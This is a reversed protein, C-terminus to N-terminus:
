IGGAKRLQQGVSSTEGTRRNRVKANESFLREEVCEALARINVPGFVTGDPLRVLWDMELQPIEHAPFWISGDESLENEPLIRGAEAWTRMKDMGAPGFVSGDGVRLYWSGKRSERAVPDHPLHGLRVAGVGDAPADGADFSGDAAGRTRQPHVDDGTGPIGDMGASFLVFRKGHPRYVYPTGWADTPMENLYAAGKRGPRTLVELSDPYRAEDLKYLKLVTSIAEISSQTAAGLVAEDGPLMRPLVMGAIAAVVMVAAAAFGIKRLMTGTGREYRAGAHGRRHRAFNRFEGVAWGMQLVGFVIWGPSELGGLINSVGAVLLACGIAAFLWPRRVIFSLVGLVILLGGWAADLFGPAAISIAGMVVLGIGWKRLDSAIESKVTGSQWAGASPRRWAAPSSPGASGSSPDDTETDIRRIRPRRGSRSGGGQVEQTAGVSNRLRLKRRSRSGATPVQREQGCSPCEVMQGKIASPGCLPTGCAYCEWDIEPEPASVEAQCSPCDFSGFAEDETISLYTGCGPCRFLIDAM